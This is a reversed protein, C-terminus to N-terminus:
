IWSKNEFEYDITVRTVLSFFFDFIIHMEM